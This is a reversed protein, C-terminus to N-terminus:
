LTPLPISVRFQRSGDGRDGTIHRAFREAFSETTACPSSRTSAHPAPGLFSVLSIGAALLIAAITLFTAPDSGTRGFGIGVALLILSRRMVLGLVNGTGAGLAVVASSANVVGVVERPIEGDKNYFSVTLRSSYHQPGRPGSV